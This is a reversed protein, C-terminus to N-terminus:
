LFNAGIEHGLRWIVRCERRIAEGSLVIVFDDPVEVGEAHLRLGCDSVDVLLCDRPLGGARSQVKATRGLRQRMARRRNRIITPQKTM